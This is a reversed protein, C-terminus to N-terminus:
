GFVRLTLKPLTSGKTPSHHSVATLPAGVMAHSVGGSQWPLELSGAKPKLAWSTTSHTIQGGLPAKVGRIFSGM